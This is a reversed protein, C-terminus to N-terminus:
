FGEHAEGRRRLALEIDHLQPGIRGGNATGLCEQVGVHLHRDRVIDDEGCVFRSALLWNLYLKGEIM